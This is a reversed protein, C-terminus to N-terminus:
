AGGPRWPDVVEVPLGTFDRVNRTALSAGMAAVIGAIMMDSPQSGLGAAQRLARFRGAERAAVDDLPLVTLASGQGVYEEFRAELAARRRGDAIRHLGYAIE